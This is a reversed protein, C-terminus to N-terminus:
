FCHKNPQRELLRFRDFYQQTNQNKSFDTLLFETPLQTEHKTSADVEAGTPQFRVELLHGSM